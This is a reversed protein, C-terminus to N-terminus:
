ERSIIDNIMRLGNLAQVSMGGVDGPGVPSFLGLCRSGPTITADMVWLGDPQEEGDCYPM